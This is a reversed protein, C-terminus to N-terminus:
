KLKKNYTKEFLAKFEEPKEEEMKALDEPSYDDWKKEQTDQPKAGGKLEKILDAVSAHASNGGDNGTPLLDIM